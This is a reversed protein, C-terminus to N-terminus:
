RQKNEAAMLPALLVILAVTAIERAPIGYRSIFHSFFGFFMVLGFAPLVFLAVDYRRRRMAIVLALLLVPFAFTAGRWLFPITLALHRWPHAIILSVARKKLIDDGELEAQPHGARGLESEIKTREARARRYYTFTEDPRGAREAALDDVAFDSDSATNLRQLRGGRRLDAPSFGLVHGLAGSLSSPGWVYFSGLYEERTMQDKLARYMLVVGARQSLQFSGLEVHNRYMWPSIICAFTLVAVAWERLARRLPYRQLWYFCPLLLAVGIFTYLVAAKVLTLIGFLLGALAIFRLKHRAFGIALSTSALMLFAAAPVESYLDDVLGADFHGGAFPINVLLVALLGLWFSSTLAQMAWFAGACLLALWLLNQYKLYKVREGSFYAEAPAVGLVNDMIKIGLACALVPIPERYDTPAFPPDEDLAIVGHRELNIAMRVVQASDKEVPAGSVQRAWVAVLATALIGAAL